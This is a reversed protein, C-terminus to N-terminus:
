NKEPPSIAPSDPVPNLRREIADLRATDLASQRRLLRWNYLGVLIGLMGAVWCVVEWYSAERGFRTILLSPLANRSALAEISIGAQWAIIAVATWKPLSTLLMGFRDAGRLKSGTQSQVRDQRPESDVAKNHTEM